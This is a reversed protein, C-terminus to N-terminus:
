FLLSWILMGLLLLFYTSSIIVGTIAMKRDHRDLASGRRLVNISTILGLIPVLYSLRLGWYADDNQTKKASSLAEQVAREREEPSASKRRM